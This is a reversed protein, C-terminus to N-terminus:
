KTEAIFIGDWGAPVTLSLTEIREAYLLYLGRTSEPAMGYLEDIRRSVDDWRQARYDELMARHEDALAGFWPEAAVREDGLVTYVRSPQTKGKVRLLDIELTAFGALQAHTAESIVLPVHYAKTQAELRSALNVTDGLVSYDFRQESGHNGVCCQGTAIGIGIGVPSFPRGAADAEARWTRNLEIIAATMDLAARVALEAHKPEPLPANWFSMICDGIYKDITGRRELVCRSMPTFFSHVFSTLAQADMSEALTTFGRIDCFMISMERMEGGLRLRSADLSIQELLAPSVYRGFADRLHRRDGETKIYHRLSQFLYTALAVLAPYVPDILLGLQRFALWSIFGALVIAAIGFVAAWAPGVRKLCLLLLVSLIVMWTLEVGTIWNPRTLFAGLVIQEVIQAHIEVGPVATRLPTVRLDSLGAASTGIFVITGAVEAADFEDQLVRWAPITRRAAPGSDYAAIRGRADTPITLNALRLGNMGASPGAKLLGTGASGQILYTSARLAVRLAEASLAPYKGDEGLSFFLPVNRIVGDRDADSNLAGLGAASAQLEPLNEIAGRFTVLAHSVDAGASALGWRARPITGGDNVLVVGLVTGGRAIQRALLSDHDPLNDALVAPIATGTTRQWIPVISKPSTRDAEAFVIDLAVAAAGAEQLRRLLEAVETRPWPWQGIKRLSEDDLDVVRVGADHYLRPQWRQFQDFVGNRLAEIPQPDAIRLALAALLAATWALSSRPIRIM